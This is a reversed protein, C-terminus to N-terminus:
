PQPTYSVQRRLLLGTSWIGTREARFKNPRQVSQRATHDFQIKQGSVLVVELSSRTEVTFQEPERPFGDNEM